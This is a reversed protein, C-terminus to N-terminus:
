KIEVKDLKKIKENINDIIIPQLESLKSKYWNDESNRIIEVYDYFFPDNPFKSALEYCLSPSKSELVVKKNLM